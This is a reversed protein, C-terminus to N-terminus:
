YAMIRNMQKDVGNEYICTLRPNQTVVTYLGASPGYFCGQKDLGFVNQALCM